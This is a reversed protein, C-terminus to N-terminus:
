VENVEMIKDRVSEEVMKAIKNVTERVTASQGRSNCPGQDPGVAQINVRGTEHVFEMKRKDKRSEPDPSVKPNLEETEMHVEDEVPLMEFRSGSVRKVGKAGTSSGSGHLINAKGHTQDEQGKQVGQNNGTTKVKPTVRRGPKQVLMWAGYTDQQDASAVEKPERLDKRGEEGM